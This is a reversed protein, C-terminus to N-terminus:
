TLPLAYFWKGFAQWWNFHFGFVIVSHLMIYLGLILPFIWRGQKQNRELFILVGLVSYLLGLVIYYGYEPHFPIRAAAPEICVLGTAIMGRSHLAVQNRFKIAIFYAVGLILLDKFTVFLGIDWNDEFGHQRSHSLLLISIFILPFIVYSAKGIMKHIAFKKKRILIPQVILMLVWISLMSAHFHFYFTFDATGDFFKSFYSPWFGVSILGVLGIFYYGSLDFPMKSTKTQM